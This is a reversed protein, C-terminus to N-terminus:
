IFMNIIPLFIRFLTIIIIIIIIIFYFFIFYFFILRLDVLFSIYIECRMKKIKNCPRGLTLNM